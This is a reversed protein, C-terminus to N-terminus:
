RACFVWFASEADTWCDIEAFGAERLLAEFEARAYKYPSESHIREGKAFTRDAGDIRVTLDRTAELHMEVRGLAANYFGAHRWEACDFNAGLIRNVNRLANLNFAATVGLSDAYAAGLKAADKKADVGILLSGGSDGGGSDGGGGGCSGGYSGGVIRRIDRLFRVADPPSFNGISSGPYFVVRRGVMLADEITLSASFDTALGFMEVEPFDGAMKELAAALSPAAIDVALYRQPAIFPLWSLAKRCDGAGLDIFTGGGVKGGAGAGGVAEAIAARHAQFIARETRTPYYEDLQCIAAYLACGLEDYFYKPEIHAREARLGAVLKRREDAASDQLRNFIHFNPSATM